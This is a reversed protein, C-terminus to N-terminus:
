SDAKGFVLPFMLRLPRKDKPENQVCIILSKVSM